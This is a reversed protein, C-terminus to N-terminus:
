LEQPSMGAALLISRRAAWVCMAISTIMQLHAILKRILPSELSCHDVVDCEGAGQMHQGDNMPNAADGENREDREGERLCSAGLPQANNSAISRRKAACTRTEIGSGAWSRSLPIGRPM